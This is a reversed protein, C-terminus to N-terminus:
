PKTSEPITRGVRKSVINTTPFLAQGDARFLTEILVFESDNVKYTMDPSIPGGFAPSEYECVSPDVRGIYSDGQRTWVFSCVDPFQLFSDARLRFAAMLQKELNRYKESDTSVVLAKMRKGGPAVIYIKQQMPAGDFGERSIQHYFVVEGLRPATIPVIKHFVKDGDSEGIYYGPLLEVLGLQNSQRVGPQCATLVATLLIVALPRLKVRSLEVVACSPFPNM